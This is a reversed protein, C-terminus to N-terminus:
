DRDLSWGAVEAKDFRAIIKDSYDYVVLENEDKKHEVKKANLTIPAKAGKLHITIKSMPVSYVSVVNMCPLDTETSIDPM